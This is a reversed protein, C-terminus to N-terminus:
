NRRWSKPPFASLLVREWVTLAEDVGADASRPPPALTVLQRALGTGIKAKRGNGTKPDM